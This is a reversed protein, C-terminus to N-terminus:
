RQSGNTKYKRGFKNTWQGPMVDGQFPTIAQRNVNHDGFRGFQSSRQLELLNSEGDHTGLGSSRVPGLLNIAGDVYGLGPSRGPGFMNMYGDVYGLAPGLVNVVEM